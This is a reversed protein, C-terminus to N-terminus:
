DDSELDATRREAELREFHSRNLEVCAKTSVWYVGIAGLLTFAPSFPWRGGSAAAVIIYGVLELLAILGGYILGTELANKWVPENKGNRSQPSTPTTM